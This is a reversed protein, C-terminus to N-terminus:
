EVNIENLKIAAKLGAGYANMEEPQEVKIVNLKICGADIFCKKVSSVLSPMRAMGGLVILHANELEEKEVHEESEKISKKCVDLIKDLAYRSLSELKSRSINCMLHKPGTADATIFPENIESQLKSSLEIRATRAADKVRKMTMPDSTLDIQNQKDFDSVLYDILANDFVRGGAFQDTTMYVIEVHHELHPVSGIHKLNHDDNADIIRLISVDTSRGVDCVIVLSPLDMGINETGGLSGISGLLGCLPEQAAGLLRLNAQEAAIQLASHVRPSVAAEAPLALFAHSCNGTDIHASAVNRMHSILKSTLLEASSAVGSEGIILQMTGGIGKKVYEEYEYDKVFASANTDDFRRGILANPAYIHPLSEAQTGVLFTSADEEETNGQIGVCSPTARQGEANEVVHVKGTDTSLISVRSYLTGTDLGMIGSVKGFEVNGGWLDEASNKKAKINGATEEKKRPKKLEGSEKAAYYNQLFRAGIYVVGAGLLIPWIETQRTVHFHRTQSIDNVTNNSKRSNCHNNSSSNLNYKINPKCKEKVTMITSYNKVGPVYLTRKYM